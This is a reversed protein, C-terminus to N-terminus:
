KIPLQQLLSSMDNLSDAQSCTHTDDEDDSSDFSIEDSSTASLNLHDKSSYQNDIQVHGNHNKPQVDFSGFGM